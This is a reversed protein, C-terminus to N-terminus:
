PHQPFHAPFNECILHYKRQGAVTFHDTIHRSWLERQACNPYHYWCRHEMDYVDLYLRGQV